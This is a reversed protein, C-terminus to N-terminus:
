HVWAARRPDIGALRARASVEAVHRGVILALYEAWLAEKRPSEPMAALEEGLDLLIDDLEAWTLTMAHDM